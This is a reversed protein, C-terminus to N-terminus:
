AWKMPLCPIRTNCCPASGRKVCFVSNNSLMKLSNRCCRKIAIVRGLHMDKCSQILSKGGRAITKFYAYRTSQVIKEPLPKDTDELYLVAYDDEPPEPFTTM